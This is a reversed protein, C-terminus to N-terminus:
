QHPPPGWGPQVPPPVAAPPMPPMPPMPAGWGPAGQWQGPGWTSPAVVMGHRALPTKKTVSLASRIM